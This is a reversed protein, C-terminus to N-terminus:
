LFSFESLPWFRLVAKGIVTDDDIANFSRSDKSRKRNDGLVYVEGPGLRLEHTVNSDKAAPPLYAEDLLHNDVYVKGHDYLVRVTRSPDTSLDHSEADVTGGKAGDPGVAIVRKVYRKRPSDPSDFVVIDGQEIAEIGSFLSFQSMIHPLKLVLIRQKNQLNPEMSEGQVEYGEIVYARLALFIVLFWAVLKVFDILERKLAQNDVPKPDVTGAQVSKPTDQEPTDSM